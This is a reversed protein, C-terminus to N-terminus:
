HPAQATIIRVRSSTADQAGKKRRMSTLAEQDVALFDWDIVPPRSRWARMAGWENVVTKPLHSVHEACFKATILLTRTIGQRQTDWQVWRATYVMNPFESFIRTCSDWRVYTRTKKVLGSGFKSYCWIHMQLEGIPIELGGRLVPWSTLGNLLNSKFTSYACSKINRTCYPKRHDISM